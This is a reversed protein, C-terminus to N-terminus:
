STSAFSVARTARGCGLVTRAVRAMREFVRDPLPWVSTGSVYLPARSWGYVVFEVDRGAVGEATSGRDSHSAVRSVAHARLHVAARPLRAHRAGRGHRAATGERLHRPQGAPRPAREIRDSLKRRDGGLPLKGGPLQHDRVGAPEPLLPEGATRRRPLARGGVHRAGVGPRNEVLAPLGRRDIRNRRRARDPVREAVAARRNGRRRSQPQDAPRRAAAGRRPRITGRGASGQGRDHVGAAVSVHGAVARGARCVRRGDTATQSARRITGRPWSLAVACAGIAALSLLLPMLPAPGVVRTAAASALLAGAAWGAAAALRRMTTRHQRWAVAIARSILAASWFVGAHLLILGFGLAIRSASLPHLSFHLLDLTTRSVINQLFRDYAWVLSAALAGAAM